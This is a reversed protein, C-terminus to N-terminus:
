ADRISALLLHIATGIADRNELKDLDLCRLRCLKDTEGRTVAITVMHVGKQQRQRFRHQRVANPTRQNGLNALHRALAVDRM